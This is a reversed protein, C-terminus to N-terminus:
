GRGSERRTLPRMNQGDSTWGEANYLGDHKNLIKVYTNASEHPKKTFAVVVQGVRFKPERKGKGKTM